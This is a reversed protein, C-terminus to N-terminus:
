NYTAQMPEFGHVFAQPFAELVRATSQGINAGVDFVVAPPRSSGLRVIDAHLEHGWPPNSRYFRIGTYKQVLNKTLTYFSSM